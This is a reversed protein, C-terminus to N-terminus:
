EEFYFGCSMWAWFDPAYLAMRSLAYDPLIFIMPYPLQKTFVDRVWNLEVLFPPYIGQKGIAHELGQLLFVLKRGNAKRIIEPVASKIEPILYCLQHDVFTLVEFHINSCRPHDRLYDLMCVVDWSFTVDAFGLTFGESFDAFVALENLTEANLELFETSLFGLQREEM